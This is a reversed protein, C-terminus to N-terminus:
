SRAGKPDDASRRSWGDVCAIWGHGQARHPDLHHMGCTNWADVGPGLIPKSCVQRERYAATTLETVEFARVDTGYAPSCNQAFRVLTDGLVTIRGAPRATHPDDRVVPSEPHESWAGALDSASYLRLTDYRFEPNTEVFMWWRGAYQVLSPDLLVAGDLLTEVLRWRFPFRTARYLRVAGSQHCEPTMYFDGRDEFVYPYSLHFPESLIIRQYRWRLADSSTALGIAGKGTREDVVEFFMYWAGDVCVMFPDAVSRSPLDSVDAGRIAPNTIGPPDTLDTPSPGVYIGISWEYGSKPVARPAPRSRALLRDRIKQGIRTVM